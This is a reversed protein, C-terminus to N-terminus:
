ANDQITEVISQGVTEALKVPVANGLQRMVEGWSGVFNFEDPFTQIRASERVTFYRVSDDEFRIMNEGGPVGHVGAKLTKSPEDIYSGTHGPYSKAGPKLIHHDYLKTGSLNPQPLDKLADRVTVWPQLHPPFLGYKKELQRVTKQTKTTLTPTPINHRDWYTQDIWKSWLLADKSHTETPFHWQNINLTNLFGVFFVRERKQPVGYNASNLLKYFVNYEVPTNTNKLTKLQHYHNSWNNTNQPQISPYSLQLIIYELYQSFKQRLLGKVNEFVFAKPQTERIARIAEPFMDRLDHNGKANGGLSFPQCPPGGSVIDIANFNTFNINSVSEEILLGHRPFRNKKLTNCANKNIEIIASPEIGVNHLGLALGGAGAFLELSKM